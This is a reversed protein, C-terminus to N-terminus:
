QTFLESAQLAFISRRTELCSMPEGAGSAPASYLVFPYRESGAQSRTRPELGLSRCVLHGVQM